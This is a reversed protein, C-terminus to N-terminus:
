WYVPWVGPLELPLKVRAEFKGYLLEVKNMTDVWGSSFNYTTAGHQVPVAQTRIVLNDNEVYVNDSMYIQWESTRTVNNAVNWSTLNLTSFNDEFQLTWQGDNQAFVVASCFAWLVSLLHVKMIIPNIVM